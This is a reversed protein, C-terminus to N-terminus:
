NGDLIIDVRDWDIPYSIDISSSTGKMYTYTFGAINGTAPYADGNSLLFLNTWGEYAFVSIIRREWAQIVNQWQAPNTNVLRVVNPFNMGSNNLNNSFYSSFATLLDREPIVCPVMILSKELAVVAQSVILSFYFHYIYTSHSSAFKFSLNNIVVTTPAAQPFLNYSSNSAILITTYTLNSTVSCPQAVGAVLCSSVGVFSPTAILNSSTIIKLLSGANTQFTPTVTFSMLSDTNKMWSIKNPEGQSGTLASIFTEPIAASNSTVTGLIIPNALNADADVKVTITFIPNSPVEVRMTVTILSSDPITPFGTIKVGGAAYFNYNIKASDVTNTKIYVSGEHIVLTDASIQITFTSDVDRPIVIQLQIYQTTSTYFQIPKLPATGDVTLLTLTPTFPVTQM